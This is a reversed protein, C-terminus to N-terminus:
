FLPPLLDLDTKKQYLYKILIIPSVLWQIQNWNLTLADVEDLSVPGYDQTVVSTMPAGYDKSCTCLEFWWWKDGGGKFVRWSFPAFIFAATKGMAM